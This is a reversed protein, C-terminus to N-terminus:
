ATDLWATIPAWQALDKEVKTAPVDWLTLGHAALHAYNQTDRLLSLAPVQLTQLFEQLHETAKTHDKIRNGVVALKVKAGHRHARVQEIFAQTPYIDFVSAQLPILVRDALKLAEDLRKGQLGAPTDLVVHTVGRPPRAIQQADIDWPQIGPLGEPRLKLWLATSQQPDIDGLMVAHGQHAWYGAINSSLTSKGVGGKPNAIVIVPM